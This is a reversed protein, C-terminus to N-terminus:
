PLRLAFPEAVIPTCRLEVPGDVHYKFEAPTPASADPVTNLNVPTGSYDASIQAGLERVRRDITAADILVELECGPPTASMSKLPHESSLAKYGTHHIDCGVSPAVIARTSARALM